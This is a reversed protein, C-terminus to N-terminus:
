GDQPDSRIMFLAAIYLVGSVPRYEPLLSVAVAVMVLMAALGVLPPGPARLRATPLDPRRRRDLHARGRVM